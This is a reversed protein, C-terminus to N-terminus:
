VSVPPRSNKRDCRERIRKMQNKSKAPIFIIYGFAQAIGIGMQHNHTMGVILFFLSLFGFTHWLSHFLWYLNSTNDFMFCTIGVAALIVGIILAIVYFREFTILGQKVIVFKIFLAALGVVIIFYVIRNNIPTIVVAIFVLFLMICRLTVSWMGYYAWYKINKIMIKKEYNFVDPDYKYIPAKDMDLLIVFAIMIAGNAFMHDLTQWTVVSVGFCFGTSRCLHYIMSIIMTVSIESMVFFANIRYSYRIAPIM